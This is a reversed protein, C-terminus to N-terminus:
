EKKAPAAEAPAAPAPAAAAEAPQASKKERLKNRVLIHERVTVDLAEKSDYAIAIGESSAMGFRANMREVVLREKPVKVLKSLEQRVQDRTPTAAAPHGIEFRFETRQLLPNKREEVIKLEM